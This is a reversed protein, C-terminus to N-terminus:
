LFRRSSITSDIDGGEFIYGVLRDAIYRGLLLGKSGLAGIVYLKSILPHPGVVPKRDQVTTRVGSWQKVSEFNQSYDPLTRKLKDTLYQLGDSDTDLTQFDHEYTSGVTLENPKSKMYAMYGLSSISSRLPLPDSYHFTATQGKINHFPVFDWEDTSTLAHGRADVLYDAKVQADFDTTIHCLGNEFQFRPKQRYYSLMGLSTLYESCADMFIKGNVTLGNLILLAGFENDIYPYDRNVHEKSIWKVWGEPWDYKEISRKFDKSLKQTLAPRIVYNEEFFEANTAQSVRCLLSYISRHGEEAQWAKKARRGTAANVLMGPAGSTGTGPETTDFVACSIERQICADAVSLGSIGAGLIAVDVSRNM